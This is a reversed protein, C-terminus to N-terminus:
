DSYQLKKEQVPGEDQFDFDLVASQGLTCYYGAITFQVGPGASGGVFATLKMNSAYFQSNDLPEYERIECSM